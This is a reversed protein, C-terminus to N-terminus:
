RVRAQVASVERNECLLLLSTQALIRSVLTNTKRQWQITTTSMEHILPTRIFTSEMTNEFAIIGRRRRRMTRKGDKYKYPVSGESGRSRSRPSTTEVLLMTEETESKLVMPLVFEVGEFLGINCECRVSCKKRPVCKAKHRICLGGRKQCSKYM